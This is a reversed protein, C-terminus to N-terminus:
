VSLPFRAFLAVNFLAVCHVATTTIDAQRLTDFPEQVHMLEFRSTKRQREQAAGSTGRVAMSFRV